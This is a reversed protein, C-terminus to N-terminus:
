EDGHDDGATGGAAHRRRLEELREQRRKTWKGEPAYRAAKEYAEIAVEVEGRRRADGGMFRYFDYRVETAAISLWMLVAASGAAVVYPTILAPQKRVVAWVAGAILAIGAVIAAAIGGPVDVLRGMLGVVLAMGVALGIAPGASDAPSWQRWKTSVMRMPWTLAWGIGHLWRAPLFAILAMAVMYWSFWGIRLKIYEAGIHFSLAAVCAVGCVVPMLKSAVTDRRPALLYGLAIV